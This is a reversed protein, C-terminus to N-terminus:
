GELSKLFADVDEVVEEGEEGQKSAQQQEEMKKKKAEEAAAAQAHLDVFDEGEEAYDRSVLGAAPHSVPLIRSAVLEPELKGQM